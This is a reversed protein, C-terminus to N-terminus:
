QHPDVNQQSHSTGKGTVPMHVLYEHLNKSHDELQVETCFFTMIKNFLQLM